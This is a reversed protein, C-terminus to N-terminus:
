SVGGFLSREVGQSGASQRRLSPLRSFVLSGLAGGVERSRQIAFRMEELLIPADQRTRHGRITQASIAQQLERMRSGETEPLQHRLEEAPASLPVVQWMDPVPVAPQLCFHFWVVSLMKGFLLSSNCDMGEACPSGSRLDLLRGDASVEAGKGAAGLKPVAELLLATQPRADPESSLGEWMPCLRSGNAAKKGGAAKDSAAAKESVQFPATSTGKCQAISRLKHMSSVEEAQRRSAQAFRASKSDDAILVTCGRAALILPFFVTVLVLLECGTLPGTQFSFVRVCAFSARANETPELRLIHM